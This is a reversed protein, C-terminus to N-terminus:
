ESSEGLRLVDKLREIGGDTVNGHPDILVATGLGPIGFREWTKFTNDLVIPFPISNGDWVKEVIPKLFADLDQIQNIKGTFDICIGVVEFRDRYKSHGNYFEMLEPIHKSLCPVCSIGWFELLVWKGRLDNINATLDMGRADVAHWRPSPEGYHETYDRWRGSERAERELDERDLADKELELMGLDITGGNDDIVLTPNPFVRLDINEPQKGSIAYVDLHYTGKPLRFEFYQTESGCSVVRTNALPFSPDSDLNVYVHSWTPSDESDKIQVRAKITTLPGLRINAEEANTKGASRYIAGLHRESDLVLFHHKGLPDLAFTGDAATETGPAWPEMKGINEWFSSVENRDSLDYDTGDPRRPSGNARWFSSLDAKLVRKGDTDLVVGKVTPAQAHLAHANFWVLLIIPLLIALPNM